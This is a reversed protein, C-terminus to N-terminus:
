KGTEAIVKALRDEINSKKPAKINLQTQMKIVWDKIRCLKAARYKSAELYKKMETM